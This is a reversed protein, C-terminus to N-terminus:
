HGVDLTRGAVSESELLDFRDLKEIFVFPNITPATFLLELELFHYSVQVTTVHHAM